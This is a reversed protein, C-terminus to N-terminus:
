PINNASLLHHAIIISMVPVCVKANFAKSASDGTFLSLHNFYMLLSVLLNFIQCTFIDNIFVKGIKACLPHFTCDIMGQLATASGERQLIDLYIGSIGDPFFIITGEALVILGYAYVKVFLPTPSPLGKPPRLVRIPLSLVLNVVVRRTFSHLDQESIVRNVKIPLLTSRYGKGRGVIPRNM